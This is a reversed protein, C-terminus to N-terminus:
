SSIPVAVLAVEVYQIQGSRQVEGSLHEPENDDELSWRFAEGIQPVGLCPDSEFFCGSGPTAKPRSGEFM